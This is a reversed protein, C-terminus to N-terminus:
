MGLPGGAVEWGVGICDILEVVDITWSDSIWLIAGTSSAM